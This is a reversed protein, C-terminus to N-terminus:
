ETPAPGEPVVEVVPDAVPAPPAAQAIADALPQVIGIAQAEFDSSTQNAAALAAEDSQAKSVLRALDAQAQTILTQLNDLMIQNELKLLAHFSQFDGIFYVVWFTLRRRHHHRRRLHM